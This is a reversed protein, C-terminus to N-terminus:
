PEEGFLWQFVRRLRGRPRSLVLAQPVGIRALRWRPPKQLIRTRFWEVSGIFREPQDGKGVWVRRNRYVHVELRAELPEVKLPFSM